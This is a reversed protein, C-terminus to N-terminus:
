KLFIEIIFILSEGMHINGGSERIIIKKNQQWLDLDFGWMGIHNQPKEPFNTLIVQLMQIEFLSTNM